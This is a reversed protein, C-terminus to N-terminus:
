FCRVFLKKSFLLFMTVQPFVSKRKALDSANKQLNNSIASLRFNIKYTVFLM